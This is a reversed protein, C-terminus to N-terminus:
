VAQPWTGYAPIGNRINLDAVPGVMKLVTDKDWWGMHDYAVPYWSKTMASWKVRPKPTMTM